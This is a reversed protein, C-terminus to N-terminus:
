CFFLIFFFSTSSVSENQQILDDSMSKCKHSCAYLCVSPYTKSAGMSIAATKSRSSHLTPPPDKITEMFHEISIKMTYKHKKRM